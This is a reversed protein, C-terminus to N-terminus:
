FTLTVNITDTYTGAPVTQGRPIRGYVPVNATTRGTMDITRGGGNDRFPNGLNPGKFLQYRLTAGGPGTLRRATPDGTAGGDLEVVVSDVTCNSLVLNTNTVLDAGQGSQYSGFDISADGVECGTLVEVQLALSATATAARGSSATAVTAAATVAALAFGRWARM